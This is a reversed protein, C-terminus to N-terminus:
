VLEAILAIKAIGAPKPDQLSRLCGFRPGKHEGEVVDILRQLCRLKDFSEERMDGDVRAGAVPAVDVLQHVEADLMDLTLRKEGGELQSPVNQAAQPEGLAFDTESHISELLVVLRPKVLVVRM